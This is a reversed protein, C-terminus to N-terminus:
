VITIYSKLYDFNDSLSGQECQTARYLVQDKDGNFLAPLVERLLDTGFSLSADRPLECPLNDVAMVGIASPELHDVVTEKITDYGYFPHEITSPRLTSAVPGDIDCSVDAVYKINFDRLRMDKRSFLFPARADYYHGAIFLSAHPAYHMFKSEFTSPDKYLQQKNFPEGDRSTYYNQADLQTWVPGSTGSVFEEPTCEKIGAARLTEVAGSSVRGKGTLVIKLDSSWNQANLQEWMESLDHCEHAPKLPSGGFKERWGRLGNYAGVLGAFRGFSVVRSSGNTLLEYDILKINKDVCAKLLGANYPQQKYTHSFFFYTKDSILQSIPVEKVGMLVDCDSLDEQLPIGADLYEQDLIARIPSPQVVVTCDYLAMLASCHAPTLPVRRDVPVKGEKVIGIKM